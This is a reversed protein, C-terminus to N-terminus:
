RLVSRVTEPEFGRRTLFMGLRQVAEPDEPLPRGHLHRALAMRARDDDTVPLDEAGEESAVPEMALAALEERMLEIVDRGVGHQRLEAEVMRKGRPAHRDRQELWWRSFALDDVLGLGALRELTAEIVEDSAHARRLRREVEWRSRPRTGLFRAAIELSAESGPPEAQSRTRRRLM